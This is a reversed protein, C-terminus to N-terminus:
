VCVLGTENTLFCTAYANCAFHKKKEKKNTSIVKKIYNADKLMLQGFKADYHKLKTENSLENLLLCKRFKEHSFKRKIKFILRFNSLTLKIM